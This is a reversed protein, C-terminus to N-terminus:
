WRWAAPIGKRELYEQRARERQEQTAAPNKSDSYIQRSIIANMKAELGKRIEQQLQEQDVEPLELCHYKYFLLFLEEPIQINAM